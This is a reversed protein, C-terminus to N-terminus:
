VQKVIYDHEAMDVPEGDEDVFDGDICQALAGDRAWVMGHSDIVDFGCYWKGQQPEAKVIAGDIKISYISM